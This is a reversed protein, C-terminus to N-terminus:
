LVEAVEAEREMEQQLSRLRRSLRVPYKHAKKLGKFRDDLASFDRQFRGRMEGLPPMPKILRGEEMFTELLAEANREPAPEDSLSIVDGRLRGRSDWLRFVQKEDALSVKGTSLKLVPRGAYRVLKYAMDLWPADGSVGMRTGVGFGDIPAGAKVLKEVEFEDLGGSALILVYDLGAQDLTQRVQRSLELLDGSDLRVGRLKHGQAEMEHAVVAAKSAAAITDYTDLLLVSTEPFSKAFARFSELESEFSTVYSHAMTGTVPIGYAKGALVNSTAQFGAMYSSRAAKMGADVGHTRRLSFDVVSRGHAAWFCRAAKTSIVSQLNVQNIVLTEVMQAEIIPATIELVPEDYFYLRGEPIARVRGTFRLNKLYDLFEGAFIDTSRLYDIAEPSVSFGELYHLVDDLGAAVLYPRNIRSQRVFLSFTAPAFMQQQLYSQAMTLEYLDTFLAAEESSLAGPKNM